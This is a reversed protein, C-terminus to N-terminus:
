FKETSRGLILGLALYPNVTLYQFVWNKRVNKIWLLLIKLKLINKEEFQAHM